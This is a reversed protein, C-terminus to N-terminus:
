QTCVRASLSSPLPKTLPAYTSLRNRPRWRLGLQSLNKANMSPSAQIYEDQQHSPTEALYVWGVANGTNDVVEVISKIYHAKGDTTAAIPAGVELSAGCRARDPMEGFMTLLAILPNLSREPYNLFLSILYQSKAVIPDLVCAFDRGSM